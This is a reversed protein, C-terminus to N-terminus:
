RTRSKDFKECAREALKRTSHWSIARYAGKKVTFAIWRVPKVETGCLRDSKYLSYRDCKSDYYMGAGPTLRRGRSAFELKDKSCKVPRVM